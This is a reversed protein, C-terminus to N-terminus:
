YIAIAQNRKWAKVVKRYRTLYRRATEWDEEPSGNKSKAIRREYIQQAKIQQLEHPISLRSRRPM